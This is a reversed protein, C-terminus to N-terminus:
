PSVYKAEVPIYLKQLEIIGDFNVTLQPHKTLQYMADPKYTEFGSWQEFKQLILPELDAGKRVSEKEGVAREADTVVVSLKQNILESQETFPNVGLVISSDSGGFGMRRIKVFADKDFKAMEYADAVVIKLDLRELDQDIM